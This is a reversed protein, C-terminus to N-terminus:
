TLNSSKVRRGAVDAHQLREGELLQCLLPPNLLQGPLAPEVRGDLKAINVVQNTDTFRTTM